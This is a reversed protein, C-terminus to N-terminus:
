GKLYKQSTLFPVLKDIAAKTRQIVKKLFPTIDAYKLNTDSGNDGHFMAEPYNGGLCNSGSHNGGLYSDM